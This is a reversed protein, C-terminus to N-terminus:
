VPFSKVGSNTRDIRAAFAEPRLRRHVYWKQFWVAKLARTAVECLLTVYHPGGFTGFGTTTKSSLYPNGSNLPAGVGGGVPTPAKPGQLLILCANFYAQFLVDVHVWESLDRGNRIYVPGAQFDNDRDFSVDEGNQIAVWTDWSTLFDGHDGIDT